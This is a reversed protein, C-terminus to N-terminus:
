EDEDEVQIYKEIFKNDIVFTIDSYYDEQKEQLSLPIVLQIQKVSYNEVTRSVFESKKERNAVVSVVNFGGNELMTAIRTALGNYETANVVEISLKENVVRSDRFLDLIDRTLVISEGRSEANIYTQQFEKEAIGQQVFYIKGLDFENLGYVKNNSYNQILRLINKATLVEASNTPTNSSKKDIYLAHIPIGLRLSAEFPSKLQALSKSNELTVIVVKKAENDIRIIHSNSQVLLFTFNSTKFRSEKSLVTIKYLASLLILVFVAAIFFGLYLLSRSDKKQTIKM